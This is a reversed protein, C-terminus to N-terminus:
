KNEKWLEFNWENNPGVIKGTQINTTIHIQGVKSGDLYQFEMNMDKGIHGMKLCSGGFTCGNFRVKIGSLWGTCNYAIVIGNIPEIFLIEYVNRKTEIYLKTNDDFKRTDVLKKNINDNM